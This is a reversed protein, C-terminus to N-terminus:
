QPSEKEQNAVKPESNLSETCSNPVFYNLPLPVTNNASFGIGGSATSQSINNELNDLASSMFFAEKDAPTPLTNPLYFIHNGGHNSSQSNSPDKSNDSEAQDSKAWFPATASETANSTAASEIVTPQELFYSFLSCATLDQCLLRHPIKSLPQSWFTNWFGDLQNRFPRNNPQSM